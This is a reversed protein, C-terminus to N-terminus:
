YQGAPQRLLITHEHLGTVEGWEGGRGRNERGERAGGRGRLERGRM